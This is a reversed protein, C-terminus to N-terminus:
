RTAKIIKGTIIGENTRVTYLYVASPLFDANMMLTHAGSNLQYWHRVLCTRGLLNKVEVYVESDMSLFVPIGFEDIFPNPMADGADFTYRLEPNGVTGCYYAQRNETEVPWCIVGPEPDIIFQDETFIVGSLYHFSVPEEPHMPNSLTTAVLPIEYKGPDYFVFHSLSYFSAQNALATGATANRACDAGAEGTLRCTVIDYGRIFIDPQINQSVGEIRTDIWATFVKEGKSDVAAQVRNSGTLSGFNGELTKLHGALVSQMNLYDDMSFISFVAFVSDNPLIQYTNGTVGIVLSIHPYGWKDVVLDCESGATYGIEERPIPQGFIQSIRYDSLFGNVLQPLGDPGDLQIAMPDSWTLGGDVSKLMVPYLGASDGTQVAQGNNTIVCIWITQGDPSAAIKLDDPKRNGTTPFDILSFTYHFDQLLPDWIGSGHIIKGMYVPEPGTYDISADVIHVRQLNWDIYFGSPVSSHVPPDYWHLHRASDSLDTFRNRGFSYGGFNSNNTLNPSFYVIHVSDPDLNLYPNLLGSQAFKAGDAYTGGGAPMVANYVQQNVLWDSVERGANTAMDVALFGELGPPVAGPGMNHLYIILDLCDDAWLVSRPSGALNFANASTGLPIIIIDDSKDKAYQGTSQSWGVWASCVLLLLLFHRDM